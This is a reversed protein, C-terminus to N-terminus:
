VFRKRFLNRPSNRHRLWALTDWLPVLHLLLPLAMHMSPEGLARATIHFCRSRWLAHVLWLITAAIALPYPEPEFWLSTGVAALLLLTHLLTLWVAGAYRLRYGWHHPLHRRTEMFFLRLTHWHRSDNTCQQLMHAEPCIRISTNHRTGQSNVLIETAGLLLAPHEAFGRHALFASRRYLMNTGDARYPCWCMTHTLALMQQWLRFFRFRLGVWGACDTYRTYGLVMQHRETACALLCSLWYPSAPRCSADTLAVWEHTARRFALTLALRHPSIDRGEAPLTLHHLQPYGHSLSELYEATGDDSGLDAVLVELDVGEQELILPLTQELQSLQNSTTVVVSVPRTGRAPGAEKAKAEEASVRWALRRYGLARLMAVLWVVAYAAFVMAAPSALLANLSSYLERM